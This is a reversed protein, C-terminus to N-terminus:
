PRSARTPRPRPSPSSRPTPTPTPSCFELLSVEDIFMDTSNGGNDGHVLFKIRVTQGAFDTLLSDVRSWTQGNECAHFLVRLTVGSTDQVYADQWDSNINDTSRLWCWFTLVGGTAPVTITQYFSSDGPTENGPLSGLHASFSGAHVQLNSVFPSPNSSDVVWPPFSGTEFGGNTVVDCLSFPTGSPTPTATPTQKPSSATPTPTVTPSVPPCTATPTPSPTPSVPPTATSTPTPSATSPPTPTPSAGQGYKITVYDDDFGDGSRGTVYVNDSSDVAIGGSGQEFANGPGNYRAVWQEQGASDYKVTAYDYDGFPSTRHSLGTVYVNSEGDLAIGSPIDNGHGPGNYYAIWQQQGSANYKITGYDPWVEGNITQGTVYVNDLDDVTVAYATGTYPAVWQEQGASNYKITAYTGTVYVNGSVDVFLDNAADFSNGHARAVWEEVGASNYKITIYDSGIPPRASVGAVYVNDASDVGIAALKNDNVGGTYEAVWQEEGSANYKITVAVNVGDRSYIVGAVYVNQSGDVAMAKGEVDRRPCVNYRAVWQEQGASNYKITTWDNYVGTVGSLGTVYVNGASDVAIDGPLDDGNDLGNYRAVWQEEGAPNYKVTAYDYGTGVGVSYGTVYVNGSSDVALGEAYDFGNGTGNYRAVWAEYVGGAPPMQYRNGQHWQHSLHKTNELPTQKSTNRQALAFPMVCLAVLLLLYFGARVLHAKTRPNIHTKM